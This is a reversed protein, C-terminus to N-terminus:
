TEKIPELARVLVMLLNGRVTGDALTINHRVNAMLGAEHAYVHEIRGETGAAVETFEAAVVGTLRVADVPFGLVVDDGDHVTQILRVKLGEYWEPPTASWEDLVFDYYEKQPGYWESHGPPEDLAEYRQGVGWRLMKREWEPGYVEAALADIAQRVNSRQVSHRTPSLVGVSVTVSDYGAHISVGDMSAFNLRARERNLLARVAAPSLADLAAERQALQAASAAEHEAHNM